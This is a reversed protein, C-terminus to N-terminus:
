KTCDFRASLRAVGFSSKRSEIRNGAGGSTSNHRRGRRVATRAFCEQREWRCRSDGSQSNRQEERRASNEM